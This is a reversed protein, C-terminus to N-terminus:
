CPIQFILGPIEVSSQLNTKVALVRLLKWSFCITVHPKKLEFVMSFMRVRFRLYIRMAPFPNGRLLYGQLFQLLVVQVGHSAITALLSM